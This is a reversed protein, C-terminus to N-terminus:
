REVYEVALGLFEDENVSQGEVRVRARSRTTVLCGTRHGAVDVSSEPEIRYSTENGLHDRVNQATFLTSIKLLDRNKNALEWLTQSQCSIAILLVLILMSFSLRKTKSIM